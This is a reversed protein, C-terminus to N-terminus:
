VGGFVTLCTGRIWSDSDTEAAWYSNPPWISDSEAEAGVEIGAGAGAGLVVQTPDIAVALGHRTTFTRALDYVRAWPYAPLLLAPQWASDQDALMRIGDIAEDLADSNENSAVEDYHQRKHLFPAVIRQPEKNAATIANRIVRMNPDDVFLRLRDDGWMRSVVRLASYMRSSSAALPSGIGVLVVDWDSPSLSGEWWEAIEATGGAANIADRICGAFTMYNDAYRSSGTRANSGVILARMNKRGM